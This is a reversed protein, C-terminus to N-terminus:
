GSAIRGNMELRVHANAQADTGGTVGDVAYLVLHPQANVAAKIASFIADVSGTGDLSVDVPAGDVAVKLECRHVGGTKSTVSMDVLKIRDAGSGMEDDVLAIIDDDYVHKKRDALDKFR